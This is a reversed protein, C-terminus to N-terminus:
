GIISLVVHTHTHKLSISLSLSVYWGELCGSQDQRPPQSYQNYGQQPPYGPPPYGQAPYGTPPYADKPYGVHIWCCFGMLAKLSYLIYIYICHVVFVLVQKLNLLVGYSIRLVRKVKPLLFVLQLSNSLTTIVWRKRWLLFM